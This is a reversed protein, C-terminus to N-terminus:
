LGLRVNKTNCEGDRSHPLMGTSTVLARPFPSYSSPFPDSLKSPTHTPSPIDPNSCTPYQGDVPRQLNHQCPFTPVRHRNSAFRPSPPPPPPLTNLERPDSFSSIFVLREWRTSTWSRQGADTACKLGDVKLVVSKVFNLRGDEVVCSYAQCYTPRM